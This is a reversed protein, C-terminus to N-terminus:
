QLNIRVQVAYWVSNRPQVSSQDGWTVDVTVEEAELVFGDHCVGWGIESFTICLQNFIQVTLFNMHAENITKSSFSNLNLTEFEQEEATM